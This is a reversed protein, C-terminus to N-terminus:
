VHQRFDGYRQGDGPAGTSAPAVAVIIDVRSTSLGGTFLGSGSGSWRSSANTQEISCRTLRSPKASSSGASPMIECRRGARGPVTRPPRRRCRTGSISEVGAASKSVISSNTPCAISWAWAGSGIACTRPPAPAASRRGLAAARSPRQFHARASGPSSPAPPPPGAGRRSGSPSSSSAHGALRRGIWAWTVFRRSSGSSCRRRRPWRRRTRSEPARPSPAPARRRAPPPPRRQRDARLHRRRPCQRLARHLLGALQFETHAAQDRVGLRHRDVAGLLHEGITVVGRPELREEGDAVRGQPISSATTWRRRSRLASIPAASPLDM